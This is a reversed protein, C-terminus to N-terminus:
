YRFSNLFHFELSSYKKRDFLHPDMWQASWKGFKTRFVPEGILSLFAQSPKYNKLLHLHPEQFCDSALFWLQNRRNSTHKTLHERSLITLHPSDTFARTKIRRLLNWKLPITETDPFALEFINLEPYEFLTGIWRFYEVLGDSPALHKSCMKPATKLMVSLHLEGSPNLLIIEGEATNTVTEGKHILSKHITYQVTSSQYMTWSDIHGKVLYMTHATMTEPKKIPEKDVPPPHAPNNIKRVLIPRRHSSPNNDQSKEPKEPKKIFFPVPYPRNNQIVVSYLWEIGDHRRSSYKHDMYKKVKEMDIKQGSYEAIKAFLPDRKKYSELVTKRYVLLPKTPFVLKFFASAGTLTQTSDDVGEQSLPGEYGLIRCVQVPSENHIKNKTEPSLSEYEFALLPIFQQQELIKVPMEFDDCVLNLYSIRTDVGKNLHYRHFNEVFVNFFPAKHKAGDTKIQLFRSERHNKIPLQPLEFYHASGSPNTAKFSFGCSPTSVGHYLLVEKPLIEMLPIKDTLPRKYERILVKEKYVICHATITMTVASTAKNKLGTFTINDNLKLIKHTATSLETIKFRNPQGVSPEPLQVPTITRPTDARPTPTSDTDSSKNCSLVCVSIFLLIFLFYCSHVRKSMM